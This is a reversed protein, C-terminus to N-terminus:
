NEGRGLAQCPTGVNAATRTLWANCTHSLLTTRVAEPRQKSANYLDWLSKLTIGDTVQFLTDVNILMPKGLLLVCFNTPIALEVYLSQKFNSMVNRYSLCPFDIGM